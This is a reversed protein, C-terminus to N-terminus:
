SKDTKLNVNASHKISQQMDNTTYFQDDILHVTSDQKEVFEIPRQNQLMKRVNNRISNSVHKKDYRPLVSVTDRPPLTTAVEVINPYAENSAFACIDTSPSETCAKKIPIISYVIEEKLQSAYTGIQQLMIAKESNVLINSTPSNVIPRLHIGAVSNLVFFVILLHSTTIM